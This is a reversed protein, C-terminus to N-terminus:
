SHSPILLSIVVFPSLNQKELTLSKYYALECSRPKVTGCDRHCCHYSGGGGGHFHGHYHHRRHCCHRRHCFHHRHFM